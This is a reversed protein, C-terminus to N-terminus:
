SVGVCVCVCVCIHTCVSILLHLLHLLFHLYQVPIGWFQWCCPFCSCCSFSDYSLSSMLPAPSIARCNLASAARGSPRLEIELLWMDAWLWRYHSRTGEEPIFTYMCISCEFMFYTLFIILFFFLFSMLHLSLFSHAENRISRCLSVLPWLYWIM